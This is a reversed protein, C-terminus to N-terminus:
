VSWRIGARIRNIEADYQLWQVTGPTPYDNQLVVLSEGIHLKTGDEMEFLVGIGGFSEDIFLATIPQGGV